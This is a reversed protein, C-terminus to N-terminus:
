NENNNEEIIQSAVMDAMHTFLVNPYEKIANTYHKWNEKTDFSGMHWRICLIEEETLPIIQQTLIVSKDGHGYLALDNNYTIEISNDKKIEIKYADCKCLDHCIGIILPSEPRAWKLGLKQTLYALADAVNISHECLGGIYNGHYKTSAPAVFFNLKELKEILKETNVRHYSKHVKFLERIQNKRKETNEKTM